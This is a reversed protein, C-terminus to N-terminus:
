GCCVDEITQHAKALEQRLTENLQDKVALAKEALELLRRLDAVEADRSAAGEARAVALYRALDRLRRAPADGLFSLCAGAQQLDRESPEIMAPSPISM